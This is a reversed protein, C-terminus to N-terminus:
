REREQTTCRAHFTARSSTFFIGPEVSGHNATTPRTWSLPCLGCLYYPGRARLPVHVRSLRARRELIRSPTVRHPHTWWPSGSTSVPPRSGLIGVRARLGLLASHLHRESGRPFHSHAPTSRMSGALRLSHAAAPPCRVLLINCYLNRHARAHASYESTTGLTPSARATLIRLPRTEKEYGNKTVLGRLLKRTVAFLPSKRVMARPPKSTRLACDAPSLTSTIRQIACPM